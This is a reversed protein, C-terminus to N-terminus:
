QPKQGNNKSEKKPCNANPNQSKKGRMKMIPGAIGLLILLVIMVPM